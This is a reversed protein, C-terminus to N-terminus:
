GIGLRGHDHRVARRGGVDRVRRRKPGREVRQGDADDHEIRGPHDDNRIPRPALKPLPVPQAQYVAAHAGAIQLHAVRCSTLTGIIGAGHTVRDTVRKRRRGDLMDELVGAVARDLLAPVQHSYLPCVHVALSAGRNHM